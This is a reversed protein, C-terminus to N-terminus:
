DFRQDGKLQKDENNLLKEVDEESLNQIENVLEEISGEGREETTISVFESEKNAKQIIEALEAITPKEFLHRLEIDKNFTEKIRSIFQTALLSHGGLDFFNDHVGVKEVNLLEKVVEVLAKETENRPEVFKVSLKLNKFDPVPLVKRDVKGSPSLPIKEIIVFHQPVMYDPLKTRIFLKLENKDIEDFKPIIYAILRDDNKSDKKIDVVVDKIVKDQRIASEIEGLEIRFGRLKIQDDIRGIFEIEGSPLWRALDGSKYIRDGKANTFPNPIFREATLEPKNLYGRALGPGSIFLEGPVGVPMPLLKKDLVYLKFNYIPKGIPPINSYKGKCIHMSACVTTETPGYANVFRRGKSWKNVLESPCSEGAVIITELETINNENEKFPIVKLVSPPLTVTTINLFEMAKKLSSGLKIIDQGVLSLSAGNMLAMVIEWVSADFSYSSFQLIKSDKTINFADRQAVSLNMLGKHSLMTGKPLGTSGSTYIIYALNEPESINDLNTKEENAFLLKDIDLNIIKGNYFKYNKSVRDLSILIETGSDELMYKIRDEPYTPDIPLFAGGAKLIALMSIIMDFSRQLSIGVITDKSVGNKRLLRALQNARKNVEHYTLQETLALKGEVETFTLAISDPYQAAIEEFKEHICKNSEFDKESNNFDKLISNLENTPIIPVRSVSMKIDSVMNFVLYKFQEIIRLITSQNFLDTNYELSGIVKDNLIQTYLTLDYKSTKNISELPTVKVDPLNIVEGPANQFVFAVQFIPSYSLNRKSQMIEVIKEFPLEQHSFATLVRERVDKLLEKISQNKKLLVRLSLTNVFFGILSEIELKNRNAIPSGIVFNSQGSYRYLLIEFGSLLFMFPTINIKKCLTEIKHTLENDLEFNVTDGNFSQLAPRPRDYPLNLVFSADQLEKKWFEIEKELIEGQLLNKQWAAYDIYQVRLEKLQLTQNEIYYKYFESIEKTIVGVSWGDSIIHHVSLALIYEYDEIKIVKLRFLPLRNLNFPEFFVKRLINEVKNKKKESSENSLDILELKVQLNESIKIIPSGKVNEFYCRLVEQRKIMENVAYELADINVKGTFKIATPINYATSHPALQDLFWLREQSYSMVIDNERDIISIEPLKEVRESNRLEDIKYVLESISETEFVIKVPLDIGFAERTRSVFQIATISHGGISFFNDNVGINDRNFLDSIINVLLKETETTPLIVEKDETTNDQNPQQLLKRDIKGNNTLPFEDVVVMQQPIMYDPLKNKIQHKVESLDIGEKSTTQLFAVLEKENRENIKDLVVAKSIYNLDSLTNEIEGLEIRYGRIKVQNDKRYLFEISGDLHTVVIDGTKYMRIGPEKSYPDPIFKEATLDPRNLYGRAIDVSSIYLEGPVGQPVPNLYSDLIYINTNIIPKGIPVSGNKLKNKINFVVSGVVTETPGYENYVNTQPAYDIWKSIQNFTL